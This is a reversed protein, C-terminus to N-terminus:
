KKDKVILGFQDKIEDWDTIQMILEQLTHILDDKHLRIQETTDRDRLTVTEDELTSYDITLAYLIGVEDNRAYRKGIAGSQDYVVDIGADKMDWYINKAEEALGDKKMLPTVLVTWPAIASPFKFWTWDRGEKVYNALLAAYLIRDVGISPEIVHPIVKRGDNDIHMKTKSETQHKMLDYDTRYALGICEVIGFPFQIELDYNAASYHATEHDQLHRFWFTEKDIGLTSIFNSEVAMYYGLYQNHIYGKELGEKLTVTEPGDGKKQAERTLIRIEIDEYEDWDPHNNIEDPDVFMELEMQEFERLRVLFNRPSIENRYAKGVQAIGFPLKARMSHAIRRFNIFINQATEPRLYGTNGSVPGVNTKFMMNFERPKGLEGKCKPCTLNNEQIISFIEDFSKGEASIELNDEVIHDARHMAKCKGCQTLPDHFSDIHGSAKFVAEPLITAASIEYVNEESRIFTERWLDIISNKIATGVPGYEYFGSMGGYIEATPFVIGRRLCVDVIEEQLTKVKTKKKTM